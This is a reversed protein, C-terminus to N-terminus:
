LISLRDGVSSPVGGFRDLGGSLGRLLLLSAVTLLVPLVWFTVTCTLSWRRVAPHTRLIADVGACVLAAMLLAFQSTGSFVLTLDSGLFVLRVERSSLPVVLTLVLGLMVLSVTIGLRDMRLM